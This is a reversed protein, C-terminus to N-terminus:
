QEKSGLFGDVAEEGRGRTAFFDELAHHLQITIEQLHEPNQPLFFSELLLQQYVDYSKERVLQLIAHCQRYFSIEQRLYGMERTLTVMDPDPERKAAQHQHTTYELASTSGSQRLATISLASELLCQPCGVTPVKGRQSRRKGPLPITLQHNPFEYPTEIRIGRAIKLLLM